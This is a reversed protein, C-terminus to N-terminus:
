DDDGHRKVNCVMEDINHVQFEIDNDSFELIDAENVDDHDEKVGTRVEREVYSDRMEAENLEEEGYKNWCQYDKMFGHKILYSKLVDDACYKKKNKCHKCPCYLNGRVNDLIDKKMFDIFADLVKIYENCLRPGYIWSRDLSM